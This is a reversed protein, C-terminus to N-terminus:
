NNLNTNQQDVVYQISKLSSGDSFDYLFKKLHGRFTISVQSRLVFQLGAAAWLKHCFFFFRHKQDQASSNMEPSPTSKLTMAVAAWLAEHSSFM